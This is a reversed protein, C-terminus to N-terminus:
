LRFAIGRSARVLRAMPGASLLEGDAVVHQPRNARMAAYAAEAREVEARAPRSRISIYGTTAGDEVVPTVNARVWYFGGSKARNKVLGDWPRGAKITAWMDAYAAPPMDPHRVLNHPEGLLEKPSFGSTEVFAANAFVIRSDTDTRSVLLRDEPLPIETATVPQNNRM